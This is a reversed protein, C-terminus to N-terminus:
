ISVGMRNRLAFAFAISLIFFVVLWHTNWGFFWVDASPYAVSISEVPGAPLPAEAPYVLQDVFSQGVRLPSILALHTNGQQVRFSKDFTQDGLKVSLRYDGPKDGAVRWALQRESPIWLAPTQVEVGAPAVLRAVPKAIGDADQTPVKGEWDEGLTAQVIVPQGPAMAHYGYRFQLQAILLFFPVIMIAMPVLAFRMYRMNHGLLEWQARLMARIDDNFLRIEFLCAHIKSKVAAIGDQNSALKYVMLMGIAAVLAIVALGALEPLGRLPTLVASVVGRLVSNVTAM